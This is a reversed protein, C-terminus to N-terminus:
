GDRWGNQGAARSEVALDGVTRQRRLIFRRLSRGGVKRLWEPLIM